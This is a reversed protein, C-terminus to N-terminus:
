AMDSVVLNQEHTLRALQERQGRMACMIVPREGIANQDAIRDAAGPVVSMETQLRPLSDCRRRETRKGAPLNFLAVAFNKDFALFRLGRRLFARRLRLTN